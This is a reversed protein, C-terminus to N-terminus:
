KGIRWKMIYEGVTLRTGILIQIQFSTKNNMRKLKECLHLSGHIISDTTILIIQQKHEWLPSATMAEHILCSTSVSILFEIEHFRLGHLWLTTIVNVLERQRDM